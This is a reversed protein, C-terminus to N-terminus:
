PNDFWGRWIWGRANKEDWRMAKSVHRGIGCRTKALLLFARGATGV